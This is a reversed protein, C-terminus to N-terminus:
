HQGEMVAVFELCGFQSLALERIHAAMKSSEAGLERVFDTSTAIVVAM